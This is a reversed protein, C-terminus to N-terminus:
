IKKGWRQDSFNSSIGSNAKREKDRFGLRYSSSDSRLIFSIHFDRFLTYSVPEFFSCIWSSDLYLVQLGKTIHFLLSMIKSKSTELAQKTAWLSRKATKLANKNDRFKMLLCFPQFFHVSRMKSRWHTKSYEPFLSTNIELAGRWLFKGWKVSKWSNQYETVNSFRNRKTGQASKSCSVPNWTLPKSTNVGFHAQNDKILETIILPCFVLQKQPSCNFIQGIQQIHLDQPLLQWNFLNRLNQSVHSKEHFNQLNVPFMFVSVWSDAFFFFFSTFLVM